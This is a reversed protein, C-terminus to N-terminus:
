PDLRWDAPDYNAPRDLGVINVERGLISTWRKTFADIEPYAQYVSDKSFVNYKKMPRFNMSELKKTMSESALNIDIDSPDGFADDFHHGPKKGPNESYFTISTGKLRPIADALGVKRLTTALDLKFRRYQLDTEFPLPREKWEVKAQREPSIGRRKLDVQYRASQRLRENTARRETIAPSAVLRPVDKSLPPVAAARAAPPADAKTMEVMSTPRALGFRGRAAERLGGLLLPLSATQESFNQVSTYYDTLAVPDNGDFRERARNLDNIAVGYDWGGKWSLALGVGKVALEGAFGMRAVQNLAGVGVALPLMNNAVEVGAGAAAGLMPHGQATLEQRVNQVYKGEDLDLADKQGKYAEGGYLGGLETSVANNVLNVGAREFWDQQVEAVVSGAKPLVRAPYLALGGGAALASATLDTLGRGAVGLVEGAGGVVGMSDHVVQRRERYEAVRGDRTWAGKEDRVYHVAVPVQEVSTGTLIRRASGANSDVKMTLLERERAGRYVMMKRYPTATDDPEQVAREYLAIIALDKPEELVPEFRAVFQRSGQKLPVDMMIRGDAKTIFVQGHSGNARAQAVLDQLVSSVVGALDDKGDAKFYGQTGLWRVVTGIGAAREHPDAIASLGGADLSWGTLRGTRDRVVWTGAASGRVRSSGDAATVSAVILRGDKTTEYRMSAIGADPAPELGLEAGDFRTGPPFDALHERNFRAYDLAAARAAFYGADSRRLSLLAQELGAPPADSLLAARIRADEVGSESRDMLMSARRLAEVLATRSSGRLDRTLAPVQADERRSLWDSAAQAAARLKLDRVIVALPRGFAPLAASVPLPSAAVAERLGTYAAFEAQLSPLSAVQEDDADSAVGPIEVQPRAPKATLIPSAPAGFSVVAAQVPRIIEGRNESQTEAQTSRGESLMLLAFMEKDQHRSHEWAERAAAASEKYRGAQYLAAARAGIFGQGDAEDAKLRDLVDLFAEAGLVDMAIQGLGGGRALLRVGRPGLADVETRFERAAQAQAPGREADPLGEAEAFVAAARLASFVVTRDQLLDNASGDLRRQILGLPVPWRKKLAVAAPPDLAVPSEAARAPGALLTSVLLGLPAWRVLM